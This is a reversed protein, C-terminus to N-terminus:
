RAGAARPVPRAASRRVRTRVQPVARPRRLKRASMAVGFAWDRAKKALCPKRGVAVSTECSHSYGKGHSGGVKGAEKFSPAEAGVRTGGNAMTDHEETGGVGLEARLVAAIEAPTVEDGNRQADVDAPLHQDGVGADGALGDDIEEGPNVAVDHGERGEDREDGDAAVVLPVHGHFGVAVPKGLEDGSECGEANEGRGLGVLAQLGVGAAYVLGEDRVHGGIAFDCGGVAYGADVGVGAEEGEVAGVGGEVGAEHEVGAM